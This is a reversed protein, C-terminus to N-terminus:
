TNDTKQEFIRSGGIESGASSKVTKRRVCDRCSRKLNFLIGDFGCM